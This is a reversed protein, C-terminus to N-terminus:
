QSYIQSIEHKIPYGLCFYDCWIPFISFDFRVKFVIMLLMMM